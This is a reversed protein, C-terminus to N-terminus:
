RRVQGAYIIVNLLLVMTSKLNELDNKLPDLTPELLLLRFRGTIQQLRTKGTGHTYSLTNDIKQLVGQCQRIVDRLGQFAEKSYLKSQDDTRLTDGLERLLACTLAVDSSLSQIAQDANKVQRYFSFLKVSLKTGLDAVQIISAAIGIAELGSM